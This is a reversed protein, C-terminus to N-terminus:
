EVWFSLVWGYEFEGDGMAFFRVGRGRRGYGREGGWSVRGGGWVALDRVM